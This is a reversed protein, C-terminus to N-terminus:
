LTGWMIWIYAALVAWVYVYIGITLLRRLWRCSIYDSVVVWLGVKAHWLFGFVSILGLYKMVPYHLLARWEHLGSIFFSSVIIVLPYVMILIASIRQAFWDNLGKREYNWFLTIPNIM